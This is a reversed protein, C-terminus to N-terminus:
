SEEKSNPDLNTMRYYEYIRWDISKEIIIDIGLYKIFYIFWIDNGIFSSVQAYLSECLKDIHGELFLEIGEQKFNSMIKSNYMSYKTYPSISEIYRKLLLEVLILGRAPVSPENKLYIEKSLMMPRPIIVNGIEDVVTDNVKNFDTIPITICQNLKNIKQSFYQKNPIISPYIDGVKYIGIAPPVLVDGFQRELIVATNFVPLFCTQTTKLLDTNYM